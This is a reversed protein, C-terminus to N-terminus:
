WRSGVHHKMFAISDCALQDESPFMKRWIKTAAAIGPLALGFAEVVMWGDWNVSRLADFTTDWQVHGTGPISRDNESIHVLATWPSAQVIAASIDKEEINAHFTDYMMRCAPHNVAQVFKVTQAVSTLFYNEFRNLYEVAITVGVQSAHDSAKQMTEVGWKFEDETPGKGTFEGIASHTPGCLTGVGAAKCCDLTRRMADVAASRVSASPSVPNDGATRITVATRELGLDDLKKGWAQYLPLNVDFIPMEVGDYGLTKIRECIPQMADHMRDTWLLLNLGYKM